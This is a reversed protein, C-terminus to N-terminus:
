EIAYINGDDCGVFVISDGPWPSSNVGGGLKIKSKIQGDLSIAYLFGDGSGFYIVNAAVSPSGQVAKGTKFAWKKEGKDASFAYLSGDMCGALVLQDTVALDCAIEYGFQGGYNMEYKLNHPNTATEWLMKKEKYCRITGRITIPAYWCGNAVTHSNYVRAQHGTKADLVVEGTALDHIGVGCGTSAASGYLQKGDTAVSSCNNIGDPVEWIGAGDAVRFALLRGSSMSFNNHGGHSGNSIIVAGYLVAPSGAPAGGTDASWRPKGTKTDLAYLNGDESAIYVTDGVVSASGSVFGGTKHKWLEKGSDAHIAYVNGDGSGIYVMGDVMVPSSRVPGGTKVQWKVKVLGPAGTTKHVGTRGLNGRYAKGDLPDFDAPNVAITKSSFKPKEKAAFVAPVLLALTLAALLSQVHKQSINM